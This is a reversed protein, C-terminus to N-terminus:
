ACYYMIPSRIAPRVLIHCSSLVACLASNSPLVTCGYLSEKRTYTQGPTYGAGLPALDIRYPAPSTQPQGHAVPDPTLNACAEVPAGGSRAQVELFGSSAILLLLVLAAEM